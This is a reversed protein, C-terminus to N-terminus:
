QYSASGTQSFPFPFTEGIRTTSSIILSAFLIIAISAAVKFWTKRFFSRKTKKHQKKEVVGITHNIKSWMRNFDPENNDQVAKRILEELRNDNM